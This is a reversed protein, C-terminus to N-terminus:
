PPQLQPEQEVVHRAVAQREIGRDRTVPDDNRRRLNVMNVVVHVACRKRLGTWERVM